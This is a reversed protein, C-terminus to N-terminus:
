VSMFNRASFVSSVTCNYRPIFSPDSPDKSPEIPCSLDERDKHNDNELSKSEVFGATGRTRTNTYLLYLTTAITTTSFYLLSLLATTTLYWVSNFTSFVRAPPCKNEPIDRRPSHAKM